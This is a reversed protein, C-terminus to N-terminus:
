RAPGQHPDVRTLRYGDETLTRTMHKAYWQPWDPDPKGLEQEHLGHVAAARQLAATLLDTTNPEV